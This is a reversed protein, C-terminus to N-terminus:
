GEARLAQSPDVRTARRAPHYAALVTALVVVGVAAAFAAGDVLSIERLRIATSLLSLAVFAAVAGVFAGVGALRMSSRVVLQVVSTGTAGLAMRIGIERTRQGITFSLVGYLGAISLTLAVAALLSGIWSAARLPYIQLTRLEDLPLPEFLQPDAAVQRFLADLAEASPEGPTRGRVLLSSVRPSDSAAPLYIHGRDVGDVIFGSVVDRAVGVVTLASYGPLDDVPRGEPPQVIITKGIPDENPWFERATAASVVAVRAAASAEDARFGRGRDIPIQLLSFYEPTVFTYRTGHTARQDSPSAAIDRSRVFLPNSQSVAVEAIRPDGRLVEALRGAPSTDEGRVNISIVGASRYGLDIGAIAAGNRALTVALIVLVTGIAVQSAVLLSRLRSGGLAGAGHGRLVDMLTLRSAQLAPLLAFMLPAVACVALCFVFVRYDIDIPALRLLVAVSPPLTSSFAVVGGRLLWAALTLGAAGALMAILLGETLLQRVLRGRSAGLSLRVAIERHRSAARALMVNSVNACAAVLVLGFAAFVPALVAALEVSLPNPTARRTVHARVGDSSPVVRAMFPTLAAQAQAATKGPQLRALIEVAQPQDVGLLGPNALDAYTTFPIWVDRPSDSLGIFEPRLIGMVPFLRGNIDLERPITTVSDNAFLRMWGQHSLVVGEVGREDARWTRGMLVAPGLAEFYNDSVLAAALPRGNSAIFRTSEAVASEFVDTRGRLEEYERWRFSQGGGDRSRWGVQHLQQPDRVAYPRLVYANVVTFAVALLGVGVALTLVTTMLFARSRRLGRVGYRLDQALQELVTRM